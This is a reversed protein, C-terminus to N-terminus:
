GKVVKNKVLIDVLSISADEMKNVISDIKAVLYNYFLQLIIAVVLGAVTTLLAIKIGKAVVAPAIDGVKEITDFAEIMGIVTGMFGLMPALAIFLSLWILGKELQGMQVSGYNVVAKEVVDITGQSARDLGQYYISAIPGRTNRCLEKAGEIDGSAVKDEVNAVFKDTNISMWFLSIIREVAIALGLILCILPLAMFGPGGQIFKEKLIEHGGKEPAPAEDETSETSTLVQEPAETATNSDAEEADEVVTETADETADESAEPQSYVSQVSFTMLSLLMLIATFKKM